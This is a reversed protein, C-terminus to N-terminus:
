FAENYVEQTSPTDLTDTNEMIEVEEEPTTVPTTSGEHLLAEKEDLRRAEENFITQKRNVVRQTAKELTESLDNIYLSFDNALKEYHEIMEEMNLNSVTLTDSNYSEKLDYIKKSIRELKESADKLM